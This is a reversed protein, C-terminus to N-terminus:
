DLTGVENPADERDEDVEQHDTQKKCTQAAVLVELANKPDYQDYQDERQRVQKDGSEVEIPWLDVDELDSQHDQEEQHFQCHIVDEVHGEPRDPPLGDRIHDEEEPRRPPHDADGAEGPPDPCASRDDAKKEHSADAKKLAMDCALSIPEEKRQLLSAVRGADAVSRARKM